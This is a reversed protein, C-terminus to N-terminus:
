SAQSPPKALRRAKEKARQPRRRRGNAGAVSSPGAANLASQIRIPLSRKWSDIHPLFGVEASCAVGLAIIPPGKV